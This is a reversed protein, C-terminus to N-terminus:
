CSVLHLENNVFVGEIGDLIQVWEESSYGITKLPGASSGMERPEGDVGLYPRIVEPFVYTATGSSCCPDWKIYYECPGRTGLVFWRSDTKWVLPQKYQKCLARVQLFQCYAIRFLALLHSLADTLTRPSMNSVPQSLKLTFGPSSIEAYFVVPCGARNLDQTVGIDLELPLSGTGKAPHLIRLSCRCSLPAAEAPYPLLSVSQGDPLMVYTRIWGPLALPVSDTQRICVTSDGYDIPSYWLFRSEYRFGISLESRSSFRARPGPGSELIATDGVFVPVRREMEPECGQYFHLAVVEVEICSDQSEGYGEEILTARFHPQRIFTLIENRAAEPDARNAAFELWMGLTPVTPLNIGQPQSVGDTAALVFTLM